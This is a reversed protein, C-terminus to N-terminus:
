LSSNSNDKLSDALVAAKKYTPNRHIISSLVKQALERNGSEVLMMAFEYATKDNQPNLQYAKKICEFAKQPNGLQIWCCYLKEYRKFHEDIENSREFYRIAAKYCKKDFELSGKLYYNLADMIIVAQLNM